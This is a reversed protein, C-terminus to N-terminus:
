AGAKKALALKAVIESAESVAQLRRAAPLENANDRKRQATALKDFLDVFRARDSTQDESLCLNKWGLAEITKALTEDAIQFDVGPMRYSGHMSVLRLFQGWAEGGNLKDGKTLELCTERIEGITPMFRCTALLREVAANAVAYDQDLIMREYIEATQANAKSNPFAALLVAVLKAAEPKTM